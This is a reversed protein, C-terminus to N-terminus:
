SLKGAIEGLYKRTLQIQQTLAHIKEETEKKRFKYEVPNNRKLRELMEENNKIMQELNPIQGTVTRRIYQALKKKERQVNPQKAENLKAVKPKM